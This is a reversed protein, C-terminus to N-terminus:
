QSCGREPMVCDADRMDREVALNRLRLANEEFRYDGPGHGRHFLTWGTIRRTRLEADIAIDTMDRPDTVTEGMDGTHEAVSRIDLPDIPCSM